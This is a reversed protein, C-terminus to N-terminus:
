GIMELSLSFGEGAIRSQMTVTGRDQRSQGDIEFEGPSRCCLEDGQRYLMVEHPWGPCVVHSKSSPGMVLSEAFLLVGDATPQTRHGSIFELRATASLPHPRRFRIKVGESLEIVTGDVLSTASGTEQDNVRVRRLPDLLYGEGVRRIVAHRRSLDGLIPIDVGGTPDPQGIVVTDHGCVLYGGVADIWLFFRQPSVDSSADAMVAAAVAPRNDDAIEVSVVEPGAQHARPRHARADDSTKTGVANWAQRRADRAPTHEPCRDLIAEAAELVDTWAERALAEHLKRTWKRIDNAVAQYLKRREGIAPIDKRLAIAEALMTDAVSLKGYRALQKAEIMKLVVQRLISAQSHVPQRELLDDLRSMALEFEGAALFTEAEILVAEILEQRLVDVQKDEAQLRMATEWDKWAASTEGQAVRARGRKAIQRAVRGLLRKAPLYQQLEADSIREGAEDLRGDKLAQEAERLKLRWPQFM